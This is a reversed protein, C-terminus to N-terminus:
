KWNPFLGFFYTWYAEPLAFGYLMPSIFVLSLTFTTLTLYLAKKPFTLLWSALIPLLFVASPLYHYYFMIRPSFIWPIFLIFYLTYLVFYPFRRILPLQLILAALGFWLILPNGQVYINSIVGSGYNVWYWVPRAAFIWQLPTSQYAHTAVLNTHYFWMQRHLEWWQEWTHGALIFPTFTLIYVAIVILTYRIAYLTYRILSSPNLQYQSWYQHIYIIALPIAGYLASWKSGLALGYIIAAAKWRSKTAAYLSWIYFTLMYSDNMAIRSQALHTGEITMLFTSLLALRHNKTLSHVFFYMGLIGLIGMVASGARYGLEGEGLFLMGLVMGYKAVPPHTWEYAVGQPPTTWWEWAEIHNHLYEKATFGHYVEDFIYANPHSLNVFRLVTALSLIAILAKNNIFIKILRQYLDPMLTTIFVFLTTVVTLISVVAIVWVPFPWTQNNIVWYFAGYLNLAYCATLALYPWTLKPMQLIALALFPLGFLLHREHMRTTFTYFLLLILASLQYSLNPNFGQKYWSRFAVFSLTFFLFLGLSHGTVGLVSLNDPIWSTTGRITWFNWANISLYPYTGAQEIARDWMFRIVEWPAHVFPLATLFFTTGSYLPFQWAKRRKIAVIWLAPAVLLMIPKYAVALGYLFASLFAQRSKQQPDYNVLIVLSLLSLLSPLADVQGWYSTNGILAPSLLLLFTALLYKTAKKQILTYIAGILVLEIITHFAKFVIAFDLNIANSILLPLSFTIIPLPLYDSWISGFFSSPGVSLLHSAWAQYTAIDYPQAPTTLGYFRIIIGLLFLTPLFFKSISIKKFMLM